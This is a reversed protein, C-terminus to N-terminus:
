KEQGVALGLAAAYEGIAKALRGVLSRGAQNLGALTELTSWAAGCPCRYYRHVSEAYAVRKAPVARTGRCRPCRIAKVPRITGRTRDRAARERATM